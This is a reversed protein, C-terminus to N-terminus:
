SISERRWNGVECEQVSFLANPYARNAGAGTRDYTCFCPAIGISSTHIIYYLQKSLYLLALVLGLHKGPQGHLSMKGMSKLKGGGVKRM